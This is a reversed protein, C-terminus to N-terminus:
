RQTVAVLDDAFAMCQDRKQYVLGSRYINVDRIIKELVFIFVIPSSLNDQKLGREVNKWIDMIQKRYRGKFTM